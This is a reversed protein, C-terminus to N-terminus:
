RITLHTKSPPVYESRQKSTSLIVTAKELDYDASEVALEIVAEEENPFLKQLEDKVQEIKAHSLIKKPSPEAAITAPVVVTKSPATTLTRRPTLPQPHDKKLHGLNLLQQTVDNVNNDSCSLLDLLYTEEAKPFVSKLYRNLSGAMLHSSDRIMEVFRRASTSIVRCCSLVDDNKGM